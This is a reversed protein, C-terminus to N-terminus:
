IVHLNTAVRGDASIVFGTGMGEAQAARVEVRVIAPKSRQAIEAPRLVRRQGEPTSGAGSGRGACAGSAITGVGAVIGLAVYCVLAHFRSM